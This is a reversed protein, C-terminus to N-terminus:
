GGSGGCGCCRTFLEYGAVVNRLTRTDVYNIVVSPFGCFSKINIL